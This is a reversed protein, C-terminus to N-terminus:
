QCDGGTKGDATRREEQGLGNEFTRHVCVSNLKKSRSYVTSVTGRFDEGPKEMLTRLEQEVSPQQEELDQTRGSCM